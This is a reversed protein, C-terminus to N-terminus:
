AWDRPSQLVQLLQHERSGEKPQVNYNWAVLPPASVMVSEIRGSDLGFRVGRDYLLQACCSIDGRSCDPKALAATVRCAPSLMQALM